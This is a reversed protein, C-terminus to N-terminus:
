ETQKEDLGDLLRRREDASHLTLVRSRMLLKVADDLSMEKHVEGGILGLGSLLCAHGGTLRILHLLRVGTLSDRVRGVYEGNYLGGVAKIRIDIEPKVRSPTTARSKKVTKTKAM